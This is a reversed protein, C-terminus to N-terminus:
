AEPYRCCPLLDSGFHLVLALRHSQIHPQVLLLLLGPVLLALDALDRMLLPLRLALDRMLFPLCLSLGRTLLPLRLAGGRRRLPARRAM